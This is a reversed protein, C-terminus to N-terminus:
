QIIMLKLGNLANNKDGNSGRELYSNHRQRM